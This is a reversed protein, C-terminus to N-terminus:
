KRGRWAALIRRVQRAHVELHEAYQRLLLRHFERLRDPRLM